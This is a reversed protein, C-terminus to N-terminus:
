DEKEGQFLDQFIENIRQQVFESSVEDSNMTKILEDNYVEELAKAMTEELSALREEYATKLELYGSDMRVSNMGIGPLMDEEENLNITTSKFEITLSM